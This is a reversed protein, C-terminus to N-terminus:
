VDVLVVLVLLVLMGQFKDVAARARLLLEVLALEWGHTFPHNEQFILSVQSPAQQAPEMYTSLLSQLSSSRDMM